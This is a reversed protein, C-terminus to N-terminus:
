RGLALAEQKGEQAAAAQAEAEQQKKWDVYREAVWCAGDRWVRLAANFAAQAEADTRGDLALSNVKEEAAQYKAFHEPHAQEFWALFGRLYEQDIFHRTAIEIFRETLADNFRRLAQDHWSTLEGTM